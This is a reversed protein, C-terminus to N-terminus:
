MSDHTQTACYVYLLIWLLPIYTSKIYWRRCNNIPNLRAACRLTMNHRTKTFDNYIESSVWMELAVLSTRLHYEAICFSSSLPANYSYTNQRCKDQAYYTYTAHHKANSIVYTLSPNFHYLQCRPNSSVWQPAFSWNHLIGQLDHSHLLPRGIFWSQLRSSTLHTCM